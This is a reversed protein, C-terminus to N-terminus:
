EELYEKVANYVCEEVQCRYGDVNVFYASTKGTIIDENTDVTTAGDVIEVIAGNIDEFTKAM